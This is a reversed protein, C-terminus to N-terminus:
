KRERTSGMLKGNYKGLDLICNRRNNEKMKEKIKNNENHLLIYIYKKKKKMGEEM